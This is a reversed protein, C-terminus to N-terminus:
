SSAASVAHPIVSAAHVRIFVRLGDEYSTGTASDAPDNRQMQSGSAPVDEGADAIWLGSASKSGLALPYGWDLQVDRDLRVHGPEVLQQGLPEVGNNVVGPEAHTTRYLRHGEIVYPSLQLDNCACVRGGSITAAATSRASVRRRGRLRMTMGFSASPRTAIFVARGVGSMSAHHARPRCSGAGRSLPGLAARVEEDDVAM